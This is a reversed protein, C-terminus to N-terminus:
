YCKFKRLNWFFDEFILNGSFGDLPLRTKGHPRAPPCSLALLRKEFNQLRVWFSSHFAFTHLVALSVLPSCVPYMPNSEHRLCIYQKQGGFVYSNQPLSLPCKQVIIGYWISAWRQRTHWTVLECVYVRIPWKSTTGPWHLVQCLQRISTSQVHLPSPLTHTKNTRWNGILTALCLSAGQRRMSFMM